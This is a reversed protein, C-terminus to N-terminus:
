RVIIAPKGPIANRAKAEKSDEAIMVKVSCGFVKSLDDAASHFADKESKQDLIREPLKDIMRPLSKMIEQGHKKLDSNILHKSLEGVNRIGSDVLEKLKSFFMYKWEESIILEIEVPKEIKALEIVSVIDKRTNDIISEIHHLRMDILSEDIEPWGAISAFGGEGILSHCEESLHPAFPNLVLSLMKLSSRLQEKSVHERTEYIYNVYDILTIIANNMRFENLDSTISKLVMNEKSALYADKDDGRSNFTDYEEFLKYTRTLFKYTGEIGQNNWEMDKDPNAVFLVFVRATDIGYKSSIEDQTVINGYSKSMKHGDKYVIGQNFLANFPEDIDLLGMDRLAKTFFRSYILHGVAHEIGGIYQDVPMWYKVREKDFAMKSNNNDCYRLFYWSSDMFGGM